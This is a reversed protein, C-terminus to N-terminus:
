KIAEDYAREMRMAFLITQLAAQYGHHYAEAKVTLIGNEELQKLREESKAIMHEIETIEM